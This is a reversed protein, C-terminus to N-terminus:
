ENPLFDENKLGHKIFLEGMKTISYDTHKESSGELGFEGNLEYPDPALGVNTQVLGSNSLAQAQDGFLSKKDAYKKLFEFDEYFGDNLCKTLRWFDSTSIKEYLFARFLNLFLPLKEVREIKDLALLLNDVFHSENDLYKQAFNIRKEFSIEALNMLFYELKSELITASIIKPLKFLQVATNTGPIDKLVGEKLISDFTAEILPTTLSESKTIVKLCQKFVHIPGYLKM